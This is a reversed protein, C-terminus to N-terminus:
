TATDWISPKIPKYNADLMDTVIGYIPEGKFRNGTASPDLLISITNGKFIDITTPVDRWVTTANAQVDISGVLSLSYNNASSLILNNTSPSQPSPPTSEVQEIASRSTPAIVVNRLNGISYVQMQKGDRLGMVFDIQLYNAQGNAVDLSWNGALVYIPLQSPDSVNQTIAPNLQDTVLSGIAGDIHFSDFTVTNTASQGAQNTGKAASSQAQASANNILENIQYPLSMILFILATALGLQFINKFRATKIAMSSVNDTKITM